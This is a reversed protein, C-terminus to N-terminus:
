KEEITVGYVINNPHKDQFFRLWGEKNECIIARNENEVEEKVYKYGLTWAALQLALYSQESFLLYSTEMKKGNRPHNGRVVVMTQIPLVQNLTNTWTYYETPVVAGNLEQMASETLNFGKETLIRSRESDKSKHIQLVDALSLQQSFLNTQIFTMGVLLFFFMTLRNM